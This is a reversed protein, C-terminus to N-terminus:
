PASVPDEKGHYTEWLACQERIYGLEDVTVYRFGARFGKAGSWFLTFLKFLFGLLLDMDPDIVIECAVSVSLFATLLTPLLFLLMRRGRLQGPTRSLPARSSRSHEGQLLQSPSLRVPAVRSLLRLARREKRTREKPPKRKAAEIEAATFFCAAICADRREETLRAATENLFRALKEHDRGFSFRDRHRALAAKAAKVEPENEGRDIGVESLSLYMIYSAFFLLVVYLSFDATAQASFSLDAFFLASFVLVTLSACLIGLKALVGRVGGTPAEKEDSFWNKM